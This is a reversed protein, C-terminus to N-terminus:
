NCVNTLVLTCFSTYVRVYSLHQLLVFLRAFRNNFQAIYDALLLGPLSFNAQLAGSLFQQLSAPPLKQESKTRNISIAHTQPLESTLNAALASFEDAFRNIDRELSPFRASLPDSHLWYQAHDSARGVQSLELVLQVHQLELPSLQGSPLTGSHLLEQVFLTSGM